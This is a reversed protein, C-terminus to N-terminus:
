LRCWYKVIEPSNRPPTLKTRYHSWINATSLWNENFMKELRFVNRAGASWTVGRSARADGTSARPPVRRFVGVRRLQGELVQASRLIVQRHESSVRVLLHSRVRASLALRRVVVVM